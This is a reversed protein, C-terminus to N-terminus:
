NYHEINLTYAFGCNGYCLDRWKWWLKGVRDANNEATNFFVEANM